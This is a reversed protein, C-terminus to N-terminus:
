AAKVFDYQSDPIGRIDVSREISGVHSAYLKKFGQTHARLRVFSEPPETSGNLAMIDEYYARQARFASDATVLYVGRFGTSLTQIAWSTIDQYFSYMWRNGRRSRNQIQTIYANGKGDIAFGVTLVHKRKYHLLIAHTGDCFVRSNEHDQDECLVLKHRFYGGYNFDVTIEFYQPLDAKLSKFCELLMVEQSWNCHETNFQRLARKFSLFLALVPDDMSERYFDSGSCISEHTMILARTQQPCRAREDDSAYHMVYNGLSRFAEPIKNRLAEIEQKDDWDYIESRSLEELTLGLM